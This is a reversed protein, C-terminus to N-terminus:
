PLYFIRGQMQKEIASLDDANLGIDAFFGTADTLEIVGTEKNMGSVFFASGPPYLIEHEDFGADVNLVRGHGNGKIELLVPIQNEKEHSLAKFSEYKHRTQSFDTSQLSAITKNLTKQLADDSYPADGFTAALYHHYDIKEKNFGQAFDFLADEKQVSSSLYSPAVVLIASDIDTRNEPPLNEVKHVLSLLKQLRAPTMMDGRFTSGSYAEMDALAGLFANHLKQLSPSEMIKALDRNKLAETLEDFGGSTNKYQRQLEQSTQWSQAPRNALPNILRPAPANENDTAGDPQTLRDATVDIADRITYQSRSTNTQRNDALVLTEVSNDVASIQRAASPREKNVTSSNDNIEGSAWLTSPFLRSTLNQLIGPM